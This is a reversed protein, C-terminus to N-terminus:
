QKRYSNKFRGVVDPTYSALLRKYGCMRLYFWTNVYHAIFLGRCNASKKGSLINLHSVIVRTLVRPLSDLGSREREARAMHRPAPPHIGKEINLKREVNTLVEM